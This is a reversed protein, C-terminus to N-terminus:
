IEDFNSLIYDKLFTDSNVHVNLLQDFQQKWHSAISDPGAIVNAHMNNCNNMKRM